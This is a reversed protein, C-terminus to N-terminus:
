LALAGRIKQITDERAEEDSCDEPTDGRICAQAQELAASIAIIAERARKAWLDAQDIQGRRGNTFWEPGASICHYLEGIAQEITKLDRAQNRENAYALIEDIATTKESAM